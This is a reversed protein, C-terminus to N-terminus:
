TGQVRPARRQLHDRLAEVFGVRESNEAVLQITAALGARGGLTALLKRAEAELALIREHRVPAPSPEAAGERDGTAGGAGDAPAHSSPSCVEEEPRPPATHPPKGTVLCRGLCTLLKADPKSWSLRAAEAERREEESVVLEEALGWEGAELAATLEARRLLEARQLEGNRALARSITREYQGFRPAFGLKLLTTNSELAAALASEV